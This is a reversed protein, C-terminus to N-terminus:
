EEGWQKKYDSIVKSINAVDDLTLGITEGEDGVEISTLVVTGLIADTFLGYNSEWLHTAYENYPLEQIKGEENVVMNWGQVPLDVPQILGGVRNQFLELCNKDNFKFLRFEGTPLITMAVKEM